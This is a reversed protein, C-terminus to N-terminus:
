PKREVNEIYGSRTVHYTAKIFGAKALNALAYEVSKKFNGRLKENSGCLNKIEDIDTPAITEYTSWFAHLWQSLGRPLQSRIRLDLQSSENNSFMLYWPEAVTMQYRNKDADWLFNELAAGEHSVNNQEICFIARAHREISNRILSRDNKGYNKKRLVHLIDLDNFSVMETPPYQSLIKKIAFAISLDFQTFQEGTYEIDYEPTSIIKHNKLKTGSSRTSISFLSSRVFTHQVNSDINWSHIGDELLQSVAQTESKEM